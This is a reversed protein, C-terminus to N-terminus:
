EPLKVGLFLELHRLTNFTAFAYLTHYGGAPLEDFVLWKNIPGYKGKKQEVRYGNHHLIREKELEHWQLQIKQM